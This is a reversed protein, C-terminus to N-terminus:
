ETEQPDLPSRVAAPEAQSRPLELRPLPASGSITGSVSSLARTIGAEIAAAVGRQLTNDLTGGRFSVVPPTHTARYSNWAERRTIASAAESLRDAVTRAITQSMEALRGEDPVGRLRVVLPISCSRESM